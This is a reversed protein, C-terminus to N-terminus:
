EAYPVVPALPLYGVLSLNELLLSPQLIACSTVLMSSDPWPATLVSHAPLCIGTSADMVSRKLFSFGRAFIRMAAHRWTVASVALRMLVRLAPPASTRRHAELGSEVCSSTAAHHAFSRPM